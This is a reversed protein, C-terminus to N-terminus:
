SFEPLFPLPIREDLPALGLVLALLIASHLAGSLPTSGGARVNIVTRM